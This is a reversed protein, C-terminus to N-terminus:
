NRIIKVLNDLIGNIFGIEKGEYFAHAIDLYESIIISPAIEPFNLLEYAGCRLLMMIVPDLRAFPWEKPLSRILIPDIREKTEGVGLVLQSFLDVNIAEVKPIFDEELGGKQLFQGIVKPASMHDFTMQYLAQIAALRSLTRRKLHVIRSNKPEVTSSM